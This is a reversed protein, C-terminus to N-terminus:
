KELWKFICVENKAGQSSQVLHCVLNLLPPYSKSEQKPSLSSSIETIFSTNFIDQFCILIATHVRERKQGDEFPNSFHRLKSLIVPYM